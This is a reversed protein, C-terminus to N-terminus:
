ADEGGGLLGALTTPLYGGIADAVKDADIKLTTGIVQPRQAPITETVIECGDPLEGYMELVYEAFNQAMAQAYLEAYPMEENRVCQNINDEIFKELAYPDKIVLRKKKELPKKKRTRVSYTGVEQGNVFVSNTKSSAGTAVSALYSSVYAEDMQARMSDPNKTSVDEGLKSYLAQKIALQEM